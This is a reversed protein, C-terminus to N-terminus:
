EIPLQISFSCVEDGGLVSKVVKVSVPQQLIEEWIGKYFGAGCYCYTLSITENAAIAERIRPCHCYLQQKIKPNTEAMYAQLNGSKPIKTATVTNGNLVGALGWGLDIIEQILNSDLKMTDRLFSEFQEQLMAHAQELDGTSQYFDQIEKLATVPYQCACGTLIQGALENGVLSDLKYVANRTWERIEQNSKTPLDDSGQMIKLRVENGASQGICISFKELWNREFDSFQSM